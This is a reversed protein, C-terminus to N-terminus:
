TPSPPDPRAQEPRVRKDDTRPSIARWASCAPMEVSHMPLARSIRLATLGGRAANRSKGRPCVVPLGCSGFSCFSIRIWARFKNLVMVAGPDIFIRFKRQDSNSSHFSVAWRSPSERVIRVIRRLILRFLVADASFAHHFSMHFASSIRPSIM